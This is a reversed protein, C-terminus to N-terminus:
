DGSLVTPENPFIASLYDDIVRERDYYAARLRGDPWDKANLAARIATELAPVDGVPVLTGWRGGELIEYPGTECDTSIVRAGCGLAQILANPLGEFQSSSVFLDCKAMASYPNKVFGPLHVCDELGLDRVLQELNAREPGEGLIVLHAAGERGVPAFAEIMVAYDKVPVLRGACLIIQKGGAAIREGLSWRAQSLKLVNPDMVPNRIVKFRNAPMALFKRLAKAMAAAPAIVLDARQYLLPTVRLMLRGLTGRFAEFQAEVASRENLILRTRSRAFFHAAAAVLNTHRMAAMLTEPKDKLLHRLLGPFAKAVGSIGLPKVNVRQDLESLYPGSARALCLTVDVGREAFGNALSTMVQEAGGGELSPLFISLRRGAYRPGDETM